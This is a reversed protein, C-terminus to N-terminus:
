GRIAQRIRGSKYYHKKYYAEQLDSIIVGKSSSAHVFKNNMLYLGIHSINESNIKFFVLDGEQLDSQDIVKTKSFLTQSSCCIDSDYVDKYLRIVFGSCDVGTKAKGGYKYPVAYWADIFTYLKQNKIEASKVNLKAAYKVALSKETSESNDAKSPLHSKKRHTCAVLLLLALCAIKNKHWNLWCFM